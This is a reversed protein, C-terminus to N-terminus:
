GYQDLFRRCAQFDQAYGAPLPLKKTRALKEAYAVMRATPAARTAASTEPASNAQVAKARRPRKPKASAGAKRRSPKAMATEDKAAAAHRSRRKRPERRAPAATLDVLGRGRQQLVGILKEAEGAIADIVRRHDANGTVVADLQMEWEATTGPDVLAPAADRL